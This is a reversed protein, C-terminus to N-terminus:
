DKPFRYGPKALLLQVAGIVRERFGGECYALYFEWMRCFVDDFNQSQVDDINKLFSERWHLLTNAYHETIDDLKIIQMDTKQSTCAAMVEISPLCGGPFIYRQIFDVSHKASLYRQDPIIIAQILMLGDHKLLKDCQTFYSEYYEHGVAEIMEISVLKDYQGQLDRYDKLLLTIKDELGAEVVGQKAYEYQERSITTTTVSCGYQQAAYIALSGWGTGIELLHDDASLQLKECITKLKNISAQELTAEKSPFIASSYMMTPDLFLEFFDNGLDYHASINKKSGNLTNANLLHLTKNVLKKHIPKKKDIQSVVSLNKAMLQVFKVVDPSSWNNRMFGEGAGITRNFFTDRYFADHHVNVHAILTAVDRSEGFNFVTGQDELILHGVSIRELASLVFKKALKDILSSQNNVMLKTNVISSAKM